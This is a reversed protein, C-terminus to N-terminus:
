LSNSMMSHNTFTVGDITIKHPMMFTYGKQNIQTPLEKRQWGDFSIEKGEEIQKAISLAVVSTVRIFISDELIINRFPTIAREGLGSIYREGLLYQIDTVKGKFTVKESKYDEKQGQFSGRDGSKITQDNYSIARIFGHDPFKQFHVKVSENKKLIEEFRSANTRNFLFTDLENKENFVTMSNVFGAPDSLFEVFKVKSTKLFPNTNSFLRSHTNPKGLSWIYAADSLKSSMSYVNPNQYFNTTSAKEPRLYSVYSQNWIEELDGTRYFILSDGNDLALIGERDRLRIRKIVKANLIPEDTATFLSRRKKVSRTKSISFTGKSTKIEQIDALGSIKEQLRVEVKKLALRKSFVEELLLEDGTVTIEIEGKTKLHPGIESGFYTPISVYLLKGNSRRFVFARLIGGYSNPGRYVMNVVEGKFTKKIHFQTRALRKSQETADKIQAVTPTIAALFLITSLLLLKKM